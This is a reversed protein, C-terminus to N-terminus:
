KLRERAQASYFGGAHAIREIRSRVVEKGELRESALTEYWDAEENFADVKNRQVTGFWYRARALLGLHYCCQGAYFQANVDDPYQQLLFFLDDLAGEFNGADFEKLASGMYDLYTVVNPAGAMRDSVSMPDRASPSEQSAPTDMSFLFPEAAPYLEDPHVLKLGYRFVLHHMVAHGKGPASPEPGIHDLRPTIHDVREVSASDRLLFREPETAPRPTPIVGPATREIERHVMRLLSDTRKVVESSHSPSSEPAHAVPSNRGPPRSTGDFYYLAIGAIVIVGAMGGGTWAKIWERGRPAVLGHLTDVAGPLAIGEMADAVLPDNQALVELGHQEASSLEGRAYRELM